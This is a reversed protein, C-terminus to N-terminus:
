RKLQEWGDDKGNTEPLKPEPIRLFWPTSNLMESDNKRIFVVIFAVTKDVFFVPMLVASVFVFKENQYASRKWRAIGYRYFLPKPM